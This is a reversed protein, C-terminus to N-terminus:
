LNRALRFGLFNGKGTNDPFRSGRYSCRQSFAESSWDGGRAVRQFLDNPATVDIVYVAPYNSTARDWCFERVNGSMDHLGYGNAPFSAVPATYPLVGPTEHSPHFGATLNVDYAYTTSAKYNSRAHEITEGWPFRRGNVGGRASKEWEAESPLRYGNRSTLWTIGGSGTRYISGGSSLAYCPERGDMESKANCWKLLDYWSASHVPHNGAKAQGANTSFTYGNALAWTMVPTWEDLTVETTKMFFGPLSVEIVPLENSVGDKPAPSQDGMLFPGEAIFRFGAPEPVTWVVRFFRRAASAAGALVVPQVSGTGAFVDGVNSWSGAALNASAEVRCSLGAPALVQLTVTSGSRVIGRVEVQAVGNSILFLAAIIVRFCALPPLLSLTMVLPDSEPRVSPGYSVAAKLM